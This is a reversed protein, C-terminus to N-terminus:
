LKNLVDRLGRGEVSLSSLLGCVTPAGTSRYDHRRSAPLKRSDRAAHSRHSARLRQALSGTRTQQRTRAPLPDFRSASPLRHLELVLQNGPVGQQESDLGRHRLNQSRQFRHRGRLTRRRSASAGARPAAIRCRADATGLDRSSAEPVTLWVLEVKEFQHLRMLGRTDKGAAGAEKRFCPTYAAYKLPLEEADSYKAAACRRSRCKPPRHDHFPRRRRRSVDCGFVQKATRDVVDDRALGAAASRDRSIRAIRRAISFSARSRARSVRAPVVCFSSAAERSNRLGRLTSFALGNASSGTRNRRLDSSGRSGGAACSSTPLKTPRGAPVSDDLLNPMNELLARM